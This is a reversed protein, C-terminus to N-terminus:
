ELMPLDEEDVKVEVWHKVLEVSECVRHDGYFECMDGPLCCKFCCSNEAFTMRRGEIIEFQDNLHSRPVHDEKRITDYMMGIFSCYSLPAGYDRECLLIHIIVPVSLKVHVKTLFILLVGFFYSLFTMRLKM